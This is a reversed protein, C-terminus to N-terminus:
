LFREREEPTPVRCTSRKGFWRYRNASVWRYIVDRLPRPILGVVISMVQWIGGLHRGLHLIATSETLITGEPTIVYVTTPAETINRACLLAFVHEHQFSGFRLTGQRDHRILFDVTTNCLNCVGDFVVITSAPM